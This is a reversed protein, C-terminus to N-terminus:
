TSATFTPPHAVKQQNILRPFLVTARWIRPLRKPELILRWLWELNLRRLWEPARPTDESLIAFAGGVGVAIRVSALETRHKEIWITQKQAGYAVLLVHPGKAQIDALISAPGAPDYQHDPSAAVILGPFQQRLREATKTVQQQTGGLLYLPVNREECLKALLNVTDVGTIREVARFPFAMLSPWLSWFQSRIFWHAWVLGAGDPVRIDASQLADRFQRNTEAEMVMEPNLTVIHHFTGSALWRACLEKFADTHIFDCVVSGVRLHEIPEVSAAAPTTVPM